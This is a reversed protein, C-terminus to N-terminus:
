KLGSPICRPVQTSTGVPVHKTVLENICKTSDKILHHEGCLMCKKAHHRANPHKGNCKGLLQELVCATPDLIHPNSEAFTAVKRVFTSKVPHETKQKKAISTDDTTTTNTPDNRMIKTAPNKAMDNYIKFLLDQTFTATVENWDTTGSKWEKCAGAYVARRFTTIQTSLRLDSATSNSVAIYGLFIDAREDLADMAALSTHYDGCTEPWFCHGLLAAFSRAQQHDAMNLPDKIDRQLSPEPPFSASYSSAMSSPYISAACPFFKDNMNSRTHHAIIGTIINKFADKQSATLNSPLSSPKKFNELPFNVSDDSAFLSDVHNILDRRTAGAELQQQADSIAGDSFGPIMTYLAAAVDQHRVSPKDRPMDKPSDGDPDDEGDIIRQIDDQLRRQADAEAGETNATAKGAADAVGNARPVAPDLSAQLQRRHQEADDREREERAERQEATQEPPNVAAISPGAPETAAAPPVPALARFLAIKPARQEALRDDSSLGDVFTELAADNAPEVQDRRPDRRDVVAMLVSMSVRMQEDFVATELGPPTAQAASEITKIGCLVDQVVQRGVRNRDAANKEKDIFQACEDHGVLTAFLDKLKKPQQPTPRANWELSPVDATNLAEFEIPNLGASTCLLHRLPLQAADIPAPAGPSQAAETM